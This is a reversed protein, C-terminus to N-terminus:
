HLAPRLDHRNLADFAQRMVQINPNNSSDENM